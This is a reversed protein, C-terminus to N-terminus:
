LLAFVFAPLTKHSTVKIKSRNVGLYFLKWSEDQFMETELKTIRAADTKSIVHFVCLCVSSL